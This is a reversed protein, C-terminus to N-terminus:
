RLVQRGLVDMREDDLLRALAVIDHEVALRALVDVVGHHRADGPGKVALHVHADEFDVILRAPEKLIEVEFAAIFLAM